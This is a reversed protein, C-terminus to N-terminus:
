RHQIPVIEVKHGPGSIGFASKREKDPRVKHLQKVEGLTGVEVGEISYRERGGKTYRARGIHGTAGSIISLGLAKAITLAYNGPIDAYPSDLLINDALHWGNGLNTVTPALPTNLISRATQLSHSRVDIKLRRSAVLLTGNHIKCMPSIFDEALISEYKGDPKNIDSPTKRLEDEFVAGTQVIVDPRSASVHQIVFDIANRSHNPIHLSPIVFIRSKPCGRPSWTAIERPNSINPLRTM